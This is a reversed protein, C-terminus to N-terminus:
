EDEESELDADRWKRRLNDIARMGVGVVSTWPGNSAMFYQHDGDDTKPPINAAILIGAPCRKTLETVLEFLSAEQLPGMEDDSEETM